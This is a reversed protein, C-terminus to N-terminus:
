LASIKEAKKPNREIFRDMNSKLDQRTSHWKTDTWEIFRDMNSKLHDSTACRCKSSAAIFRDMNSKLNLLSLQADLYAYM